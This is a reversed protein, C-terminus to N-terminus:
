QCKEMVVVREKGIYVKLVEAGIIQYRTEFEGSITELGDDSAALIPEVSDSPVGGSVGKVILLNDRVIFEYWSYPGSRGQAQSFPCGAGRVVWRGRMKEGFLSYSEGVRGRPPPEELAPPTQTSIPERGKGEGSIIFLDGEVKGVQPANSVSSKFEIKEQSEDPMFFIFGILAVICSVIGAVWSVRELKPNREKQM